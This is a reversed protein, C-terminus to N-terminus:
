GGVGPRRSLFLDKGAAYDVVPREWSLLAGTYGRIEWLIETVDEPKYGRWKAASQAADRMTCGPGPVIEVLDGAVFVRLTRAGFEPSGSPWASLQQDCSSCWSAGGPKGSFLIQEVDDVPVANFSGSSFFTLCWRGDVPAFAIHNADYTTKKTVVTLSPRTVNM